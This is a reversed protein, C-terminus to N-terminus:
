PEFFSSRACCFVKVRGPADPRNSNAMALSSTRNIPIRDPRDSIFLIVETNTDQPNAEMTLEYGAKVVVPWENYSGTHIARYESVVNGTSPDTVRYHVDFFTSDLVSPSRLHTGFWITRTETPSPSPTTTGRGCCVLYASALPRFNKTTIVNSGAFAGGEGEISVSVANGEAKSIDSGTANLWDNDSARLPWTANTELTTRSDLYRGNVSLYPPSDQREFAVTAPTTATAKYTVTKTGYDSFADFVQTLCPKVYKKFSFGTVDTVTVELGLTPYCASSFGDIAFAAAPFSFAYTAQGAANKANPATLVLTAGQNVSLEVKAIDKNGITAMGAIPAIDLTAQGAPACISCAPVFTAVFKIIPTAAPAVVPATASSGGGGCGSLAICLAIGSFLRLRVLLARAHKTM